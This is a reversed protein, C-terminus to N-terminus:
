SSFQAFTGWICFINAVLRDLAGEDSLDLDWNNCHNPLEWVQNNAIEICFREKASM